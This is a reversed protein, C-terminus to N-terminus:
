LLYENKKHLVVNYLPLYMLLYLGLRLTLRGLLYVDNIVIDMKGLVNMVTVFIIIWLTYIILMKKDVLKKHKLIGLYVLLYIYVFIHVIVGFVGDCQFVTLLFMSVILISFLITHHVSSLYNINEEKTEVYLILFLELMFGLM